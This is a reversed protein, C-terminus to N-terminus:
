QERTVATHGSAAYLVLDVHALDAVNLHFTHFEDSLRAKSVFTYTIKSRHQQKVFSRFNM